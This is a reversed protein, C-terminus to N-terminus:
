SSNHIQHCSWSTMREPYFRYLLTRDLEVWRRIKVFEFNTQPNDSMTLEIEIGALHVLLMVNQAPMSDSGCNMKNQYTLDGTLADHFKSAIDDRSTKIYKLLLPTKYQWLVINCHKLWHHAICFMYQSSLNFSLHSMSLHLSSTEDKQLLIELKIGCQM